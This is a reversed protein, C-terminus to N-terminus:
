PQWYEPKRAEQLTLWKVHGDVFACNVGGNHRPILREPGGSGPKGDAMLITGAPDAIGGLDKGGLAANFFYSLGGASSEDSPCHLIADNRHYDFIPRKWDSAAPLHEDNDQAYLLFALALQKLNSMCSAQRAKDRARIFVPAVLPWTYDAYLATVAGSREDHETRMRFVLRRADGPRDGAPRPGRALEAEAEALARDAQQRLEEPWAAATVMGAQRADALTGHIDKQARALEALAERGGPGAADLVLEWVVQNAAGSGEGPRPVFRLEAPVPEQGGMMMAPV